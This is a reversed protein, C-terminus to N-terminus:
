KAAHPKSVSTGGGRSTSCLGGIFKQAAVDAQAPPIQLSLGGCSRGACLELFSVWGLWGQKGPCPAREQGSPIPLSVQAGCTGGEPPESHSLPPNLGQWHMEWDAEASATCSNQHKGWASGGRETHDRHCVALHLM